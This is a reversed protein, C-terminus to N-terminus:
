RTCLGYETRPLYEMTLDVVGEVCTARRLLVGPSGHGLEHGHEDPRGGSVSLALISEVGADAPGRRHAEGAEQAHGDDREGRPEDREACAAQADRRGDELDHGADDRPRGDRAPNVHVRRDRDDGADAQGHQQDAPSPM